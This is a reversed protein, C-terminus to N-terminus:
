CVVLNFDNVNPKIYQIVLKFDMKRSILITNMPDNSYCEINGFGNNCLLENLDNNYYEQIHPETTEFAWLRFNNTSVSKKLKEQDLDVLVFVGNPKLIRHAEQIIKISIDKPVEHLVFMCTVMDCLNNDLKTNEINEHLYNIGFQLKNNRYSAVAIFYPSLDIGIIQKTPYSLFLYETSIGISCGFDVIKEIYINHKNLYYNIKDTVNYRMWDECTYGDVGEWYTCSVSKTAAELETASKWELNGNEYGHFKKLYYNPYEIFTNEKEKKWMKLALKTNEDEYTSVLTKWNIGNKEAREIFWSKVSEHIRNSIKKHLNFESIKLEM